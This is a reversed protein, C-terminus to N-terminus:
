STLRVVTSMLDRNGQIVRTAGISWQSQTETQRHTETNQRYHCLTWISLALRLSLRTCEGHVSLEPAQLPYEIRCVYRCWTFVVQERPTPVECGSLRVLIPTAHPGVHHHSLSSIHENLCGTTDSTPIVYWQWICGFPLRRLRCFGSYDVSYFCEASNSAGSRRLM